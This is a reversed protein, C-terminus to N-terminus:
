FLVWIIIKALMSERVEKEEVTLFTVFGYRLSQMNAKRVVCAPVSQLTSVTQFLQSLDDDNVFECLNGVFLTTDCMRDPLPVMEYRQGGMMMEIIDPDRDTVVFLPGISQRRRSHQTKMMSPSPCTWGTLPSRDIRSQFGLVTTSVSVIFFSLSWRGMASTSKLLGM